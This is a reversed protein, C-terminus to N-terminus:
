GEQEKRDEIYLKCNRKWHGLENYFFCVGDKLPKAKKAKPKIGRGKQVLLVTIPKKKINHEVTKLMGHLESISEEMNNMNYDMVFNDYSGPLSNLIVDTALEQSM